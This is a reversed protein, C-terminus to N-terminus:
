QSARRRKFTVLMLAAGGALVAGIMLWPAPTSASAGISRLQIATPDNGNVDGAVFPTGGLEAVTLGTVELNPAAINVRATSIPGWCATNTSPSCSAITTIWDIRKQNLTNNICGPTADLPLSATYTGSGNITFLDFFDSCTQNVYPAIGNGFPANAAGRGHSVIVATGAQGTLRATGNSVPLSAASTGEAWSSRQAGMRQSWEGAPMGTPAAALPNNTGWFNHGIAPTGAGAYATTFTLINNAYATLAGAGTRNFVTNANTLNLGKVTIAGAGITFLAGAGGTWNLTGTGDFTASNAGANDSTLTTAINHTGYTTVLGGDALVNLAAQVTGFCPANGSCAVAPDAYNHNAVIKLLNSGVISQGDPNTITVSQLGTAAGVTSINIQMHTPDIYTVSNVTVGGSVAAALRLRCADTLNSPTDYFGSGSVATGTINITVSPSGWLVVTPSASSPTAPPPANLKVARVGYSNTANTFEQITWMTMDDCPDLSTYSFDGWRRGSAGGPDSAPNYAFTSATYIVPPTQMTGLADGALRGVTAGNAYFASGATSFGVAVHGQGSVMISPIWHFRANNANAASDFITGSQVLAPTGTLNQIEYWRVAVRTQGTTNAVGSANVTFNHATWLRGNRIYAAFLRDDLSDLRGNNGGTNGLHPVPATSTTTPVTLSLNGSITPTGGPNSVRRIQLLSYVANDTGIFYGETATPDYNDVGQPTYPGAGTSGGTLNTFPTWVIPGGGTLSSKRVVYGSTYAYAGASTFINGGIYLANVDIGLTPYDVFNSTASEPTFYFFTWTTGATITSTDSMAIMVRNAATTTCTANTCPVDIMIIFWRGSLRDYRIRPDSTFDLVVTGGVPTMVSAWFVDPDANLVGDAVGTTKNFSRFRGNVAVIFQTPGVTGMTDPPFAGTDALTAGTFSIATTQPGLPSVSQGYLPTVAPWQAVAPALPNDKLHSRDVQFRPKSHVQVPVNTAQLQRRMIQATTESVGVAGTQPVGIIEGSASAPANAVVIGNLPLLGMSLALIMGISVVSQLWKRKFM